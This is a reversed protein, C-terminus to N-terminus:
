AVHSWTQNKLISSVAAPSVGFQAALARGTVEGTSALRRIEIVDAATLKANCNREGTARNKHFGERGKTIMDLTNAAITGLMLHKPNCCSPNDCAHCIVYGDPIKFCALEWALRHAKMYKGDVRVNGYGKTTKAGMWEWCSHPATINVKSWFAAKSFEDM